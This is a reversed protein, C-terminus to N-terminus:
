LKSKGGLERYWRGWDVGKVGKRFEGIGFGAEESPRMMDEFVREIERGEGKREAVANVLVKVQGVARPASTAMMEVYEEVKRTAEEDNEVVAHIVGHRFLELATMARGTIM